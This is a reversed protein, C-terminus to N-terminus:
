NPNGLFWKLAEGSNVRYNKFQVVEEVSREIPKDMGPMQSITQKTRTRVVSPFGIGNVVVWTTESESVSVQPGEESRNTSKIMHARPESWPSKQWTLQTRTTGIPRKALLDVLRGEADTVLEYELVPRMGSPDTAVITRARRPDLKFAYGQMKLDIPIPIISELRGVVSAKLEEKIERFGEPMGHVEIAVREPQATWYLRFSVENVRGFIVQDNLQKTLQPIVIDVVLDQLGKFKPSYAVEDTKKLAATADQAMAPSFSFLLSMLVLLTVRM